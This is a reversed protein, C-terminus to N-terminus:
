EVFACATQLFLMCLGYPQHASFPRLFLPTVPHSLVCKFIYIYIYLLPLASHSLTPSYVHPQIVYRAFPSFPYMFATIHHLAHHVVLHVVRQEM